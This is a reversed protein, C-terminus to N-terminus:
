QNIKDKTKEIVENIFNVSIDILNKVYNIETIFIYGADTIYLEEIESLVNYDKQNEIDLSYDKIINSNNHIILHRIKKYKNL